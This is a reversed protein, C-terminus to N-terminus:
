KQPTAELVGDMGKLLDILAKEKIQDPNYGIIWLNEASVRRVIRLRMPEM